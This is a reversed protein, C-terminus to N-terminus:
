PRFNYELQLWLSVNEGDKIGPVFKLNRAAAIARETLGFPLGSIVRINTVHGTKALLVRLVVTGSINNARAEETYTPEPKETIRPKVDLERFTYIREGNVYFPHGSGESVEIGDQDKGLRISSFFQKVGLNDAATGNASFRFFRGETAFFQVTSVKDRSSYEKGAFGNVTLNRETTLDYTSNATQEAIFDKLSQRPESNDFINVEYVIGALTTLLQRQRRNKQVSEPTKVTIMAPRIPLIVSFEEGKVTYRKWTQPDSSVGGPGIGGGTGVGIGGQSMAHSPLLIFTCILLLIRKM